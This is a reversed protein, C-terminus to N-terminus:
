SRSKKSELMATVSAGPQTIQEMSCQRPAKDPRWRVFATGHRFRGNSFHDYTVEVVLQKQLMDRVILAVELVRAFSAGRAPDLDFHLYDPRNVDDCRAYWQNLDICGLNVIWLLSAVDQVMPFDILSGSNHEIACTEVWDPRPSPARKMFFCKGSAGNPYRKMVMARDSLHPLLVRSVSVYYQLLDRKTIGLSPWFQKHLNTLRVLKGGVGLEAENIETPIHPRAPISASADMGCM